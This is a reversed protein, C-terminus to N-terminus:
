REKGPNCQILLGTDPNVSIDCMNGVIKQSRKGTKENVIIPRITGNQLTDIADQLNVGSRRIISLDNQLKEPDTMTGIMRQLFHKSQGTILIGNSATKGVLKNQIQHYDNEYQEFGAMPSVWGGDVDSIYRQLLNYRPPDNYKLERYDDLTKISSDMGLSKSWEQYQANASDADQFGDNKGPGNNGGQPEVTEAKPAIGQKANEETMLRDLATLDEEPLRKGEAADMAMAGAIKQATKGPAEMARGYLEGFREGQNGIESPHTPIPDSELGYQSIARDIGAKELARLAANTLIQGGGLVAAGTAASGFDRVFQAPNIVANEDTASYIPANKRYSVNNVFKEITNQIPQELGEEVISKGLQWVREPNTVGAGRIESPLTEIGGSVEVAANALSSVMAAGAAQDKTAGNKLNNEYSPGFTRAFSSWYLPNKATSLVANKVTELMNGAQAAEGTLQPIKSGGATALALLAQPTWEGAFSVLDAVRRGAKGFPKANEDVQGSLVDTNRQTMDNLDSIPKFLTGTLPHETGMVFKGTKLDIGSNLIDEAKMGLEALGNVTSSIGHEFRSTGLLLANGGLALANAAPSQGDKRGSPAKVPLGASFSRISGSKQLAGVGPVAPLAPPRRNGSQTPLGASFASRAGSPLGYAPLRGAAERAAYQARAEAPHAFVRPKPASLQPLEMKGGSEMMKRRNERFPDLAPSSSRGGPLPASPRMRLPGANRLAANAGANPASIRQWQFEATPEKAKAPTLRSVGASTKQQGQQFFKSQYAM